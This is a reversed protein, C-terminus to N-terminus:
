APGPGEGDEGKQPREQVRATRRDISKQAAAGIELNEEAEDIPALTVFLTWLQLGILGVLVALSLGRGLGYHGAATPVQRLIPVVVQLILAYAIIITAYKMPAFLMKVREYQDADPRSKTFLGTLGKPYVLAIWAGMVGFVIASVTVLTDLIPRQDAFPIAQGYTFACLMAAAVILLMLIRLIRALM